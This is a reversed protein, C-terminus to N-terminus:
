IVCNTKDCAYVMYMNKVRGHVLMLLECCEAKVLQLGTDHLIKNWHTKVTTAFHLVTDLTPRHLVNEKLM